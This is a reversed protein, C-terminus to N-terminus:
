ITIPNKGNMEMTKKYFDDMEEDTLEYDLDIRYKDICSKHIYKATGARVVKDGLELKIRCVPCLM